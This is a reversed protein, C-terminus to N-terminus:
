DQSSRNTHLHGQDLIKMIEHYQGKLIPRKREKLLSSNFVSNLIAKQHNALDREEEHFFALQSKFGHFTTTSSASTTSTTEEAEEEIFSL